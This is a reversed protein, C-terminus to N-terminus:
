RTTVSNRRARRRPSPGTVPAVILQAVLTNALWHEYHDHSWGREAVLERYLEENSYAWLLDTATRADMGPGLEGALQDIFEAFTRARNDLVKRYEAAFVPDAQAAQRHISIVDYSTEMQQRILKAWLALRRAGEREAAAQAMLEPIKSDRLMAQRMGTVIALKNGFAAYVTPTAVGAEEAIADITTGAWGREGMLKRAAAVIRDKTM